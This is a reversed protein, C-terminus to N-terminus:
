TRAGVPKDGAAKARAAEKAKRTYHLDNHRKGDFKTGGTFDEAEEDWSWFWPFQDKPRDPETGRDKDWKIGPAARLICAKKAKAGLWRATMFPSINLRVGDNIDPDWGIPQEALPKWRVFIDFPPEGEIIKALQEQLHVAAAVRADAGEAGAAQQAKQRTIWDGLYEYAIKELTRRGEGDPGALRHYNVLVHFGDRLGDWIHWVYPRQHFLKLHQESFSDRLWDDLTEGAAEVDALLKDRLDASWDPGYADALLTLLRDAATPEGRVSSLCVLGDVDAHSELGDPGVAPCDPFESGAQRPWRYGVLRAVAVHLPNNSDKPHGDFLWQTPDSSHPPPLGDPYKEAAVKQWHSLDFAVNLVAHNSVKLGKHTERLAAVLNGSSLFEWISLTDHPHNPIIAHATNDFMEGTFVTCHMERMESISVGLRGWADGGSRWGGMRGAEKLRMAHQFYQGEGDEWLLVNHRGGFLVTQDCASQSFVWGNAIRQLEWFRRIFPANDSTGFGQISSAYDSLLKAHGTSAFGIAHERSLLQDAQNVLIGSGRLLVEAKESPTHPESAEVGFFCHEGVIRGATIALLAVFAGAAQSSGFAHEGLRAVCAWCLDGLLRKRLQKYRSLFLWNQPTVVASTGGRICYTECREVFCTALDAKSDPHTRDCYDKLIDDQKNRGLYPVNTAVLSFQRGLIEAAKAVGRATVAMEHEADDSGESSLAKELIPQLETFAAEFAAYGEARPNILSGLVPADKFLGHLRRMGEELRSNGEALAVWEDETANPALGSCAIHMAPLPCHGVRRWAALALNFAGIQTCRPDIELGYLNDRIVAQIAATESLGEEAMRMPVLREFMAVVFHGSGMCPDLCTLDKTAKPWGDFTGAAPRWTGSEDAIFRLYSWPVGALLVAKRLDDETTASAAISPDAALKKVAWWAGLTNDLLFDVMYDETFLQTVAPLEDAGIKVGSDNVADKKEAQWFQYCWGLSDSATFVDTGLDAVIKELELQDERALEVALVPDDARFIEPLMTQAFRSALMWVDTGREKALERCTDLSIAVGSDPEILLDNEALFRAFLMRHWHEYAVEHILRATAQKGTKPDLADGLQRGRARLKVRLARDATPQGSWPEHSGVALSDLAKTAAREAVRRAAKVANELNRRLTRDLPPM